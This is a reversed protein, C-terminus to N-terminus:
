SIGHTSRTRSMRGYIDERLTRITTIVRETYEGGYSRETGM